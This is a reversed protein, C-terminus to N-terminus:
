TADGAGPPEYLAAVLKADFPPSTASVYVLKEAGVNRISHLAGKPVFVLTAPGVEKEEDAVHMLGKGAVIVYVQEADHHAHRGQESEPEGEVWTIALNHSDAQGETLLLYSVQGGRHHRPSDPLRRTHM